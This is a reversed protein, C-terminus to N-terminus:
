QKEEEVQTPKSLYGTGNGVPFFIIIGIGWFKLSIKHSFFFFLFHSFSPSFGLTHQQAHTTGRRRGRRGGRQTIPQQTATTHILPTQQIQHTQHINHTSHSNYTQCDHRTKHTTNKHTIYSYQTELCSVLYLQHTFLQRNRYSVLM